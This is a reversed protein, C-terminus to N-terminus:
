INYLKENKDKYPMWVSFRGTNSMHYKINWGTVTVNKDIGQKISNIDFNPHDATYFYFGNGGVKFAEILIEIIHKTRLGPFIKNINKDIIKHLHKLSYDLYTRIISFINISINTNNLIIKETFISM